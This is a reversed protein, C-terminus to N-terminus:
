RVKSTVFPPKVVEFESLKGRVDVFVKDALAVKSDLLALAIGQKLTPSFTGSTIKGIETNNSNSVKMHSRPIAREVAKIGVLKRKIGQNKENVLADKGIFSDKQMAVAWNLGAELPSINLSIDQGHLPYGM